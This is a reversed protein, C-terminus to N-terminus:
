AGTLIAGYPSTASSGSVARQRHDSRGRDGMFACGRTDLGRDAGRAGGGQVTSSLATHCGPSRAYGWSAAGRPV